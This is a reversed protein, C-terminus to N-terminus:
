GDAQPISSMEMSEVSEGYENVATIICYYRTGNTLGTQVHPSTIDRIKMGMMMSGMPMSAYNEKTIGPETTMYMNYTINEGEVPDWTMTVQGGGPTAVLNTPASPPSQSGSGSSSSTGGGGGGCAIVFILGFSFLVALSKKM